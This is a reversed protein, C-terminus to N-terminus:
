PAEPLAEPLAEAKHEFQKRTYEVAEKLDQKVEPDSIFGKIEIRARQATFDVAEKIDQKVFAMFILLFIMLVVGWPIARMLERLFVRGLGENEAGSM